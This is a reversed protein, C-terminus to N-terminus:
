KSDPVEGHQISLLMSLRQESEIAANCAEPHCPYHSYCARSRMKVREESLITHSPKHTAREEFRVFLCLAVANHLNTSVGLVGHRAEGESSGYNCRKLEKLRWLLFTGAFDRSAFLCVCLCV